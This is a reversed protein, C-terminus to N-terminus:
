GAGASWGERLRREAAGGEDAPARGEGRLRDLGLLAAGVVPPDSAVKLVARPAVELVRRAVAAMLLPPEAALVGGGLVVDAAEGLLDLRGLATVALVAIEAAQREVVEGAVPDGAEAVRFLLPVLEHLREAPLEGLHVAEAVATASPLGFHDSTAAALATAPGRGDEARVSSWMVEEMLGIGGGWDGTMRGLAPFRATRGDPLLGVCNIGAGCVVAVGRPADTGSRLVAFTDNGVTVTRSWGRDEFEKRLRLEEVPLDINALYAAVHEVPGVGAATRLVEEVLEAIAEAAAEHGLVYPKYGPGRARGRVRGDADVVAVDTKSNGADIALVAPASGPSADGTVAGM